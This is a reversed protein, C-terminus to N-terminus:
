GSNLVSLSYCGILMHKASTFYYECYLHYFRCRTKYMAFCDYNSGHIAYCLSTRLSAKVYRKQPWSFIVIQVYSFSM